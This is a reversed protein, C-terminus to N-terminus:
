PISFGKAAFGRYSGRTTHTKRRRKLSRLQGFGLSEIKQRRSEGSKAISFPFCSCNNKIVRYRGLQVCSINASQGM